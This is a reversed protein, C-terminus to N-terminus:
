RAHYLHMRAIYLAVAPTLMGGCSVGVRLRERIATSSTDEDVTQLIHVRARQADTLQLASLDELSEEPRSVVIWEALDLLAGPERWKPLALFSDAGVIAYLEAAPEEAKLRRLADVTYNKSGDAHPADINSVELRPDEACLLRTMAVRDEFSAGPLDDKLPQSGTPALLVRDLKLADAAARAVLLHASHPPDFTGGFYGIRM